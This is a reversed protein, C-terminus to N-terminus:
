IMSNNLLAIKTSFDHCLMVVKVQLDEFLIYIINLNHRKMLHYKGAILNSSLALRVM